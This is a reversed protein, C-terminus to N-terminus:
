LVLLFSLTITAMCLVSLPDAHLMLNGDSSKDGGSSGPDSKGKPSNSSSNKTDSDTGNNVNTGNSSKGKNTAVFTLKSQAQETGCLSIDKCNSACQPNERDFAMCKQICLEVEGRCQYYEVPFVYSSPSVTSSCQCNWTLSEPNCQNILPQNPQCLIQCRATNDRCIQEKIGIEASKSLDFKDSSSLTPPDSPKASQAQLCSALLSGLFLSRPTKM